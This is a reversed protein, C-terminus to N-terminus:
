RSQLFIASLGMLVTPLMEVAPKMMSPFTVRVLPGLLPDADNWSCDNCTTHLLKPASSSRHQSRGANLSSSLQGM